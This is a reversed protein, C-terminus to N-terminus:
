FMSKTEKEGFLFHKSTGVLQAKYIGQGSFLYAMICALAIYIGSETGFLEMGLIICAIPTNSAGAFVAVFGMAALLGVPLPLVLSLSSGLTAGIFFLPTVEGGKFGVGLTFATLLLKILFFHPFLQHDFSQLITPIGLGIFKFGNFVMVFVVIFIGGLFPRLPPYKIKKTIFSSISHTITSFFNATLGFLIGSLIACLLFLFNINPIDTITYATHEVGWLSCIYNAIIATLFSPVLAEYSLRGIMLVELAFVAGALPTGFVASFGASIGILILIKHDHENLKFTKTFQNSIAGGIQVATGERGASGGFLHTILTALFIMPAMKFPVVKKTSHFASLLENNGNLVNHGYYHYLLGIILGGIPLIYIIWSNIERFETVFDLSILFWAVVSGIISGLLTSIFIWKLLLFSLKFKVSEKINYIFSDNEHM